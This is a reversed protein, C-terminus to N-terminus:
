EAAGARRAIASQENLFRLNALVDNRPGAAIPAGHGILMLYDARKLADPRHSTLIITKNRSKLAALTQDLADDGISDLNSNPEDLIILCPDGYLARALAVRQRQGMSILSGQFGIPTDYGEPLDVILRHVGALTAAEVVAEDSAAPDFRAINQRVTGDFLQMEQPVYGILRGLQTPDWKQVPVGDLEISGIVCSAPLVGAIARVLTSKGAGSPGIVGLMEGPSLEFSPGKGNASRKLLLRQTGPAVVRLDDVRLHGGAAALRTRPRFVGVASQAKGVTAYAIRSRQFNRWQAIFQEIPQLARGYLTTVAIIMGGTLEDCIVFYAGLALMGSQLIQRLSRSLAALTSAWDGAQGSLGLSRTREARWATKLPEFMGLVKIAEANRALAELNRAEATQAEAAHQQPCVTCWETLAALALLILGGCLAAIGLWKHLIFIVLLYVPVWPGDLLAIIGPGSCFQRIVDLERLVPAIRGKGPQALAASLEVEFLHGSLDWDLVQGIRGLVRSRVLDLVAMLGLLVVLLGFLATLTSVSRSSLVRDYVQLSFLAGSLMLINIVCSFVLVAAIAWWKSRAYALVVNVPQRRVSKSDATDNEPHM